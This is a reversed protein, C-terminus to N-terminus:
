QLRNRIGVTTTFVQRLRRDGFTQAVAGPPFSVSQEEDTVNDERGRVLLHIRVAVVEDWANGGEIEAADRYQDVQRDADTDEGFELAMREVGEVLEEADGDRDLRFLAPENSGPADSTAIFYSRATFSLVTAGAPYTKGLQPPKNGTGSHVLRTGDQAINTIQFETANNCDTVWVIDGDSFDSVKAIDLKASKFHQQVIDIGAGDATFVQIVDSDQDPDEDAVDGDLAPTWGSDHTHGLIGDGGFPTGGSGGNKVISNFQVSSGGCGRFDAGRLDRAMTELAFRGSEQVRSLSEQFRYTQQSGLFIQIVGGTLILSIVIAVMLEILTLGRQRHGCGSRSVLPTSM